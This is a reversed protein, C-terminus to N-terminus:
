SLRLFLFSLGFLLLASIGFVAALMKGHFVDAAWLKFRDNEDAHAPPWAPGRQSYGQLSIFGILGMIAGAWFFGDSLQLATWEHMSGIVLVAIGSILLLLIAGILIRMITNKM